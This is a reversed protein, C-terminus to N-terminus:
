PYYRSRLSSYPCLTYFALCKNYEASVNPEFPLLYISLYKCIFIYITLPENCVNYARILSMDIILCFVHLPVCTLVLQRSLGPSLWQELSDGDATLCLITRSPLSTPPGEPGPSPSGIIDVAPAPPGAGLGASSM